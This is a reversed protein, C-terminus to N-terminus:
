RDLIKLYFMAILKKSNDVDDDPMGHQIIALSIVTALYLSNSQEFQIFNVKTRESGPPLISCLFLGVRTYKAVSVLM